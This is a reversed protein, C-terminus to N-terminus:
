QGSVPLEFQNPNIAMENVITKEIAQQLSVENECDGVCNFVTVHKGTREALHRALLESYGKEGREGLLQSSAGCWTSDSKIASDASPQLLTTLFNPPTAVALRDLEATKDDFVVIVLSSSLRVVEFYLRHEAHSATFSHVGIGPVAM